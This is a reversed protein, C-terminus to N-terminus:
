HQAHKSSPDPTSENVLEVVEVSDVLEMIKSKLAAYEEPTIAGQDRARQLDIMEQGISIHRAFTLEGKNAFACSGALLPISVAASAIWLWQNRVRVESGRRMSM